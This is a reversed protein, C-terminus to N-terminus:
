LRGEPRGFTRGDHGAPPKTVSGGDARLESKSALNHAAVKSRVAWLHACPGDHHVWGRCRGVRDGHEDLKWCDAYWQGANDNLLVEHVDESDEFAVIWGDGTLDSLVEVPKQKARAISGDDADIIDFQTQQTM